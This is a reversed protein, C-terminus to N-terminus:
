QHRSGPLRSANMTSTSISVCVTEDEPVSSGAESWSISPSHYPGSFRGPYHHFHRPLVQRLQKRPGRLVSSLSWPCAGCPFCNHTIPRDRFLVLVTEHSRM